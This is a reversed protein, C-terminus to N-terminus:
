PWTTGALGTEEIHDGATLTNPGDSAGPIEIIHSGAM